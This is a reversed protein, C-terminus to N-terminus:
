TWAVNGSVLAAYHQDQVDPALAEWSHPNFRMKFKARAHNMAMEPPKAARIDDDLRKFDKRMVDPCTGERDAAQTGPGQEDNGPAPDASAQSQPNASGHLKESVEALGAVTPSIEEAAERLEGESLQTDPLQGRKKKASEALKVDLLKEKGHQQEIESIRDIDEETVVGLVVEPCYRRAWRITGSYILKQEPDKTWMQNLTKAQGVSLIVRCDEAEGKFRGTVTVAMADGAKGNFEYRLRGALGARSNVVAAILKGQYALKGGISYTEPAVAFPDFGWRLSQNVVLFCNAMTEDFSQGRLHAPILSARAMGAAIRQTHEYRATDMLYSLATNDEVVRIERPRAQVREISQHEREGTGNDNAVTMTM